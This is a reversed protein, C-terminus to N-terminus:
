KQWPSFCYQTHPVVTITQQWVIKNAITAGNVMMFKDSGTTHGHGVFSNHHASADTDIYFTGENWLNSNYTYQSSFGTNGQSFDGNIVLNDESYYSGTVSYTTTTSPSAIPTASTPDSLGTSPTWLYNTAGSVSLQVSQGQTITQDGCTVLNCDVNGQGYTHPLACILMNIILFIIMSIVKQARM